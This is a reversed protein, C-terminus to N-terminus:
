ALTLFKRAYDGWWFLQKAVPVLPMRVVVAARFKALQRGPAAMAATSQCVAARAPAVVELAAGIPFLIRKTVGTVATLTAFIAAAARGGRGGAAVRATPRMLVTAAMHLPLGASPPTVGDGGSTGGMGITVTETIGLDALRGVWETFAGGGGGHTANGAGGGAWLMARVTTDPSMGVPKIWTGDGAFEQRNVGPTSSSLGSLIRWAAGDFQLLSM